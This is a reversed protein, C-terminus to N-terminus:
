QLGLTLGGCSVSTCPRAFAKNGSLAKDGCRLATEQPAPSPSHPGCLRRKHRSDLLKLPRPLKQSGSERPWCRVLKNRPEAARHSSRPLLSRMTMSVLSVQGRTERLFECLMKIYIMSQTQKLILIM